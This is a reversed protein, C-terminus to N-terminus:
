APASIINSAIKIDNAAVGVTGSNYPQYLLVATNVEIGDGRVDSITNGEITIAHTHNGLVSLTEKTWLPNTTNVLVGYYMGRMTNGRITVNSIRPNNLHIAAVAERGTMQCGSIIVNSVDPGFDIIGAYMSTAQYDLQLNLITVNSGDISLMIEPSKLQIKSNSGNLSFNSPIRLRKSITYTKNEPFTLSGGASAATTIANQICSTDDQTGDGACKSIPTVPPTATAAVVTASSTTGTQAVISQPTDSKTTVITTVTTTAAPAAQERLPIPNAPTITAQQVQQPLSLKANVIERTKSGFYGTAPFINNKLQFNRVGLLTIRGFYGTTNGTTLFGNSVLFQQLARVSEGRSGVSLDRNFAASACQPVSLLLM